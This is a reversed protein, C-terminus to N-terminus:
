SGKRTWNEWVFPYDWTCVHTRALAARITERQHDANEVFDHFQIQLNDIMEILGTEILHPLVEFEGGEINIKLLDIHTVGLEAIVDASRRLQVVEGSKTGSKEEVVSSADADDTLMLERDVAGLGFPHSHVKPVDRFRAVCAKHFTLSPEFLHVEAGFKRHIDDAFDGLYGGLDFVVSEPGLDYALRLDQDRNDRKWARYALVRPDKVVHILWLKRMAIAPESLLRILRASLPKRSASM